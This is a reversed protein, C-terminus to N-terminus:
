IRAARDFGGSCWYSKVCSPWLRRTEVAWLIALFLFVFSNVSAKIASIWSCSIQREAFEHKNYFDKHQAGRRQTTRERQLTLHTGLCAFFFSLRRQFKIASPHLPVSRFHTSFFWLSHQVANKSLRRLAVYWRLSCKRSRFANQFTTLVVVSPSARSLSGFLLGGTINSKWAFFQEFELKWYFRRLFEHKRGRFGKLDNSAISNCLNSLYFKMSRKFAGYFAYWLKRPHKQAPTLVAFPFKEGVLVIADGAAGRLFM